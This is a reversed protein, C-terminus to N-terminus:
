NKILKHSLIETATILKVIYFGKNLNNINIQLANNQSLIVKGNMDQIDIRSVPENGNAQIYLVENAPNPYVTYHEKHINKINTYGYKKVYISKIGVPKETNDGGEIRYIVTNNTPINDFFDVCSNRDLSTITKELINDKFIKITRDAFTSKGTVTIAVSEANPVEFELKGGNYYKGRLRLIKNEYGGSCGEGL